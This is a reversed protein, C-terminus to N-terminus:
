LEKKLPKMDVKWNEFTGDIFHLQPDAVLSVYGQIEEIMDKLYAMANARMMKTEYEEWKGSLRIVTEDKTVCEHCKGRLIWMRDDARGRMIKECKPCFWPTKAGAVKSISQKIGNKMTWIKDNEEWVDGEDHKEKSPIFMSVKLAQDKKLVNGMKRRIGNLAAVGESVDATKRTKSVSEELSVSNKWPTYEAM